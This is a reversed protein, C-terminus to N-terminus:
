GRSAEKQALSPDSQEALAIASDEHWEPEALIQMISAADEDGDLYDILLEALERLTGRMDNSKAAIAEMTSLMYALEVAHEPTCVFNGDRSTLPAARLIEASTRESM